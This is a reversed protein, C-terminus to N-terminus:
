EYDDEFPDEYDEEDGARSALALALFILGLAAALISGYLLWNDGGRKFFAFASSAFYFLMPLIFAFVTQKKQMILLLLGSVLMCLALVIYVTGTITDKGSSINNLGAVFGKYAFFGFAIISVVGFLIRLIKFKPKIEEVIKQPASQKKPAAKKRVSGGNATNRKAATHEPNVPRKKKVPKREPDAALMDEYNQKVAKERKVRVKEPPINAYRQQEQREPRASAPRKKRPAAAKAATGTPTTSTETAGAALTAITVATASKEGTSGTRETNRRAKKEPSSNDSCDKQPTPRKAVEKKPSTQQSATKKPVPVEKESNAAAKKERQKDLNWQKKCDRCIAYENFIPQNSDDLGVQKKTLEVDKGCKPCKM